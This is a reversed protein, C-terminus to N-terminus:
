MKLKVASVYIIIIIIIIIIISFRGCYECHSFILLFFARSRWLYM